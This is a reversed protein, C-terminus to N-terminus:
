DEKLSFSLIHVIIDVTWGDGLLGAAENDTVGDCYGVPVTQLKEREHRNLYRIGDYVNGNYSIDKAKKGKFNDDYHKKCQEFHEKNKFIITNFKQYRHYMKVPTTLPRSDSECLTRAKNMNCYGDDLIDNLNINKNKPPQINPINTWYNRKRLSGSVLQSDILIPKCNMYDNFQQEIEKKMKVNELLFYKPKVEKLIRLYEFFLGSKEGLLGTINKNANSCDQCPSGGILYDVEGVKYEGNESYLVGNEFHIKRVDGLQITNPYNKQTIKIATAKIESAFYKNNIGDFKIGLKDFAIQGCSMGDFLSVVIM